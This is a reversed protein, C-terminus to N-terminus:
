YKKLLGVQCYFLCSGPYKVTSPMAKQPAWRREGKAKKFFLRAGEGKDGMKLMTRRGGEGTAKRGKHYVM